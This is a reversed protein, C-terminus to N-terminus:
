RLWALTYMLVAGREYQISEHPGVVVVIELMDLPVTDVLHPDLLFGDLYVPLCGYRRVLYCPPADARVPDIVEIGAYNGWRLMQTLDHAREVHEILGERRVAGWRMATPSRGILLRLRRDIQETTIELGAIPLPSRRMLLDLPYTGEPESAELLPTEFDDYGIREAQLRYVGPEPAVVRYHGSSDAATIAHQKGAADVLRVLATAVPRDDEDDVVRGELTQAASSAPALSALSAITALQALPAAVTRRELQLKV